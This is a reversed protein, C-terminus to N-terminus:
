IDINNLTETSENKTWCRDAKAPNVKSRDHGQQIVVYDNVCEERKFYNSMSHKPELPTGDAPLPDSISFDGLARPSPTDWEM